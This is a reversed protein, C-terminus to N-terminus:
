SPASKRRRFSVKKRLEEKKGYEPPLPCKEKVEKPIIWDSMHSDPYITRRYALARVSILYYPSIVDYMDSLKIPRDHKLCKIATGIAHVCPYKDIDFKRCSCTKNQLDVLYTKGDKGIVNYELKFNNLLTVQLKEGKPVRKHLKNEVLPVLKRSSPGAVADTRHRNFWEAMKDFVTDLMPLLSMKRAKEFLANWSEACNSTDINCRAGPFHCKAWNKVDVSKDLYTACWLYRERFEQYQQEFEAESYVQPVKRFQEAVEDRDYKVHGKVNHSLHWICYGHKSMPYVEAVAKILSTNRDSVFVLETSDPIVTKLTTFFWNWSANKEGDVVSFAIPYHHRNPDQATAIILVGGKVIELFTADVTIVKRM